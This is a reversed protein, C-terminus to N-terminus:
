LGPKTAAGEAPQEEPKNQAATEREYAELLAIFEAVPMTDPRAYLHGAEHGAAPSAIEVKAVRLPIQRVNPKDLTLLVPPHAASFVYLYLDAGEAIAKREYEDFSWRSLIFKDTSVVPLSDCQKDTWGAPKGLSTSLVGKVIEKVPNM